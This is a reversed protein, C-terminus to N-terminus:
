TPGGQDAYMMVNHGVSGCMDIHGATWSKDTGIYAQLHEPQLEPPLHGQMIRYMLLLIMDIGFPRMGHLDCKGRYQLFSPFHQNLLKEWVEPCSLDKGYYMPTTEKPDRARTSRTDLRSKMMGGEKEMSGYEIGRSRSNEMSGYEIGRSRSNEMTGDEKGRLRCCGTETLGHGKGMKITTTDKELASSGKDPSPGQRPTPGELWALFASMTWHAQDEM